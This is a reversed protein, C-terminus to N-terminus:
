ETLFKFKNNLLWAIGSIFVAATALIYGRIRWHHNSELLVELIKLTQEEADNLSSSNEIVFHSQKCKEEIPMQAAIRKKADAESLGNRDMLRSLQIDEECTVTIIKHIYPLFWSTEFLLPLDLVVFNHGLVFYKIIQKYITQHIPPHTISNLTRRKQVDNFVLQGLAIRNIEGNPLLIEEGFEAKIRKYAPTNIDIVQKAILDADIVPIDNDKFIKTVTSKGTAIGGTIAVLFM